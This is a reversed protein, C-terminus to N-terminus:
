ANAYAWEIGTALEQGIVACRFRKAREYGMRRVDRWCRHDTLLRLAERAFAEADGAPVTIPADIFKVSPIRSAIAPVGSTMAEIVPLGFGEFHLSPFILLDCQRMVRAAETPSIGCLYRDPEIIAREEESLPLVSLRILRCRQGSARILKIAELATRIGKLEAEFVGPVIIWAERRPRFRLWAPRFLPDLPPPVVVAQRGFREGILCQLHPSVVLTPLPLRYLREIEARREGLHAFDGEYGQCFHAVRPHGFRQAISITTWYTAIALDPSDSPLPAASYDVYRGAYRVWAPRAGSGMVTVSHGLSHLIQAHQFVVKVGGCLEPQDLVYTIKM